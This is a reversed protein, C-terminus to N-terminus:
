PFRTKKSYNKRSEPTLPNENLFIFNLNKLHETLSLRYESIFNKELFLIILSELNDLGELITIHNKDLFLEQLNNLCDLGEM